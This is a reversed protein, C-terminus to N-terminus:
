TTEKNNNFLGGLAEPWRISTWPVPYGVWKLTTVNRLNQGDSALRHQYGHHVGKASPHRGASVYITM